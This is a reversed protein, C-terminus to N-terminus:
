DGLVKRMSSRAASRVDALLESGLTIDTMQRVAGYGRKGFDLRMKCPENRVGRSATEMDKRRIEEECEGAASPHACSKM